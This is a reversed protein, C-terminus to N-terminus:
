AEVAIPLRVRVAYGGDERAGAQLEGGYLAARERMGILGHGTGDGAAKGRGDDVIELELTDSRYRVTLRVNAPGAHKITNTLAEQVIRFATLDIGPALPEPQGEIQVSVDVGAQRTASVLADLQDMGPLPELALEDDDRLVTLLRRMESLSQRGSAELSRLHDHVRPDADGNLLSRAAGAQVVMISMGHAVVDHLERAIRAREDLVAARAQAERERELREARRGLDRARKEGIRITWGSLWASSWVIADFVIEEAKRFQDTSAVLLVWAALTLGIGALIQRRSGHRAVSYAGIVAPLLGAFFSGMSDTLSLSLSFTALIVAFTGLPARRRWALPVTALLVVGTNLWRPGGPSGESPIWGLWVHGLGYLALVAALAVDARPPPPRGAILRGIRKMALRYRRM